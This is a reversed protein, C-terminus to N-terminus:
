DGILNKSWIKEIKSCVKKDGGVSLIPNSLYKYAIKLIEEGSITEIKKLCYDDYETDINFGMLQVKRGILNENKQKSFLISSKLKTKALNLDEINIKETIIKRWVKLLIQFAFLANKDSTSLYILFPSKYKRVPNFIGVEYVLNNEERFLKFLLSSMGFALYSELIKLTIYESKFHSFTDKGLMITIQNSLRNTKIFRNSDKKLLSTNIYNTEHTNTINFKDIDIADDIAYNTLIFKDRKQFSNFEARIDDFNIRSIDNEYGLSDYAYSHNLYTIKRWNEFTINFLSEKSRQVTQLAINKVVNFQNENLLPKEIILDILPYIENFYENMVKLNIFIGDELTEQNLEAGYSEIFETLLHKDSNICGRIILESLIQNIGKKGTKDLNSGDNIWVKLISFNEKRTEIFFPKNM